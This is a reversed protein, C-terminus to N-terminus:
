RKWTLQCCQKAHSLDYQSFMKNLKEAFAKNGCVIMFPIDFCHWKGDAIDEAKLQRSELLTTKDENTLKIDLRNEIEDVSLNGLMIGM